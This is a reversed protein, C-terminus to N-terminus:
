FNRIKDGLDKILKPINDQQFKLVGISTKNADSTGILAGIGNNTVVRIRLGHDLVKNNDDSFLVRASDIGRELIIGPTHNKISHYLPSENFSYEWNKGTSTETIMIKMNENKEAVHKELISKLDESTITAIAKHSANLVALKASCYPPSAKGVVKVAEAFQKLSESEKMASSSNLWDFSGDNIDTKKKASILIKNDGDSIELDQKFQTGGRKIVEFSESLSPYLTRATGKQLYEKLQKENKIGDAHSSGDTSYAM